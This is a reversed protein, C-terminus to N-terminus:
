FATSGPVNEINPYNSLFESFPTEGEGVVIYDVDARNIVDDYEYSVEPGGLMIKTNPNLTKIKQTVELTQTINWIYCSFAVVEFTACYAAVEDKNEKITFEKWNLGKHQENLEYLLRIALNTHIYKANLTTLLVKM